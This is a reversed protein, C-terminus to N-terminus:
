DRSPSRQSYGWSFDRLGDLSFKFKLECYPEYNNNSTNEFLGFNLRPLPANPIDGRFIGIGTLRFKRFSNVVANHKNKNFAMEWAREWHM